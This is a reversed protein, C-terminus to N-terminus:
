AQEYTVLEDPAFETDSMGNVIGLGYATTIYNKAWMDIDTFQTESYYSADEYGMVAVLMKTFEARTITNEPRFTNTGDTEEYGNIVNLKSLTIIADKYSSDEIDTFSEAYSTVSFMMVFLAAFLAILLLKQKM